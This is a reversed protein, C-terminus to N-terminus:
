RGGRVIRQGAGDVCVHGLVVVTLVPSRLGLTAATVSYRSTGRRRYLGRLHQPTARLRSIQVFHVRRARLRLVDKGFFTLPLISRLPNRPRRTCPSTGTTACSTTTALHTARVSLDPRQNGLQKADPEAHVHSVRVGVKDLRAQEVESANTINIAAISSFNAQSSGSSLKSM